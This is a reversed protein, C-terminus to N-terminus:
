QSEKTQLHTVGLETEAKVHGEKRHRKKTERHGSQEKKKKKKIFVNTMPSLGLKICYLRM